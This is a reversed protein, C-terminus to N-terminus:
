GNGGSSSDTGKLASAVSHAASLQDRDTEAAVGDLHRKVKPKAIEGATAVRAWANDASGSYDNGLESEM